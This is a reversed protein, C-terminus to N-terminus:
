AVGFARDTFWSTSPIYGEAIAWQRRGIQDMTSEQQKATGGIWTPAALGTPL